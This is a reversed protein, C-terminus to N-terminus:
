MPLTHWQPRCRQRRYFGGIIRAAFLMWLKTALAFLFFSLALGFIGLLLFPKRGYRDSLRGWM